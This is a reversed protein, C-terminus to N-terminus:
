REGRRLNPVLSLVHRVVPRQFILSAAGYAAVGVLVLAILEVYVAAVDVSSRVVLVSVAMVGASVGVPLLGRVLPMSQLGLVRSAVAQQLVGFVIALVVHTWAVATVTRHRDRICM